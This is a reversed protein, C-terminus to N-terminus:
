KNNVSLKKSFDYLSLLDLRHYPQCLMGRFLMGENAHKFSYLAFCSPAHIM